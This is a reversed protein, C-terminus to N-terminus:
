KGRLASGCVSSIWFLVACMVIIFIDALPYKVYGPHRKDEIESIRARIEGM